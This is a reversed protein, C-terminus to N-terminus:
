RVTITQDLLGAEVTIGESSVKVVKLIIQSQETADVPRAPAAPTKNPGSLGTLESRGVPNVRGQVTVPIETGAQVLFNRNLEAIELLAMPPQGKPKIFGRLSMTPLRMIDARKLGPNVGLLARLDGAEAPRTESEAPNAAPPAVTPAPADDVAPRTAPVHSSARQDLPDALQGAVSSAPKIVLSTVIIAVASIGTIVRKYVRM